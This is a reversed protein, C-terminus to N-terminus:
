ASLAISKFATAGDPVAKSGALVGMGLTGWNDTWSNWIRVGWRNINSLPLRDNLEVPDCACVSHGWWSFDVPCPIRSLLCTMLQDFTLNRDYKSLALNWFGEIVRHQKADEWTAPNDYSRSTGKEPWKNVSPIGYKAMFEAAEPNWGGQNRFNKIKCGVAFASLRVYPQAEVARSLLAASTTSHCWCYGYSGQDTSRIPGGNDGVIRLDSLRSKETELQRIRESWEERPILPMSFPEITSFGAVDQDWYESEMGFGKQEGDIVPARTYLQYNDDTIVLENSGLESM